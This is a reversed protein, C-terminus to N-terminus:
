VKGVGSERVQLEPFSHLVGSLKLFSGMYPRLARAKAFEPARRADCHRFIGSFTQSGRLARWDGRGPLLGEAGCPEM